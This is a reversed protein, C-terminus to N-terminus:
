VHNKQEYVGGCRSIIGANAVTAAGAGGHEAAAPSHWAKECRRPMAQHMRAAPM